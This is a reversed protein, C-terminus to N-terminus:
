GENLVCLLVRQVRWTGKAVGVVTLRQGLLEADTTDTIKVRLDVLVGSVSAPVTVRYDAVTVQQEAVAAVQAENEMHRVRCRGAFVLAGPVVPHTNKVPDYPGQTDPLRIECADTMLSDAHQRLVPLVSRIDDAIVVSM